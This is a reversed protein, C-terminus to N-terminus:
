LTEVDRELDYRSRVRDKPDPRRMDSHMVASGVM